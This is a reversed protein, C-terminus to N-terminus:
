IQVGGWCEGRPLPPALLANEREAWHAPAAATTIAPAQPVAAAATSPVYPLALAQVYLDLLRRLALHRCPQGMERAKCGTHEGNAAVEYIQQSTASVLILKGDEFSIWPNAQLEEIAREIAKLWREKQQNRSTGVTRKATEVVADMVTWNIESSIVTAM